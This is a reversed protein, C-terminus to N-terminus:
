SSETRTQAARPKMRGTHRNRGFEIPRLEPTARTGSPVCAQLLRMRAALFVSHDYAHTFANASGHLMCTKEASSLAGLCRKTYGGSEPHWTFAERMHRCRRMRQKNGGEACRRAM